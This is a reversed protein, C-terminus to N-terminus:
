VDCGLVRAANFWKLAEVHDRTLGAEGRDYMQGLRKAANCDGSRASQTLQQVVQRADARMDLTIIKTYATGELSFDLRKKPPLSAMILNTLRVDQAQFETRMWQAASDAALARGPAEALIREIKAFREPHERQVAELNAPVDLDISSAAFLQGGSTIAALAALTTFTRIM